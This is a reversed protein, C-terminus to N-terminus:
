FRLLMYTRTKDNDKGRQKRNNFYAAFFDVILDFTTLNLQLDVKPRETLADIEQVNGAGRGKVGSTTTRPKVVCDNNYLFFGCIYVYM